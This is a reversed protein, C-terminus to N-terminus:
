RMRKWESKSIYYAKGDQDHRHTNSFETIKDLELLQYQIKDHLKIKNIYLHSQTAWHSIMILTLLVCFIVLDKRSIKDISEDMNKFTKIIKRRM